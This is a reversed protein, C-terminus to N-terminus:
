PACTSQSAPIETGSNDFGSPGEDLGGFATVLYYRDGSSANLDARMEGGGLDTVVAACNNGLADAHSYWTGITGEYINYGAVPPIKEFYLYFGTTSQVNHALRLPVSCGEPSVETTSCFTITVIKEESMGWCGEADALGIVRYNGSINATYTSGTAEPIAIGNWHWQFGSFIGDTSLTVSAGPCTNSSDGSISPPSSLGYPIYIGGSNLDCVSSTGGWVIM